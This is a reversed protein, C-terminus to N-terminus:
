DNRRRETGDELGNGLVRVIGSASTRRRACDRRCRIVNEEERLELNETANGVSVRVLLVFLRLVGIIGGPIAFDLVLVVARTGGSNPPETGRTRAVGVKEHTHVGVACDGAVVRVKGESERWAKAYLESISVQARLPRM